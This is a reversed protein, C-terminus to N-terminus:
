CFLIAKHKDVLVTNTHINSRLTDTSTFTNSPWYSLIPLLLFRNSLTLIATTDSLWNTHLSNTCTRIVCSHRGLWLSPGCPTENGRRVRNLCFQPSAPAPSRIYLVNNKWGCSDDNDNDVSRGKSRGVDGIMVTIMINERWESCNDTITIITM